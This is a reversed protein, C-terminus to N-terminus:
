QYYCSDIFSRTVVTHSFNKMSSQAKSQNPEIPNTLDLFFDIDPQSVFIILFDDCNNEIITRASRRM